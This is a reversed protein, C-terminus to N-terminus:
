SPRCQCKCTAAVGWRRTLAIRVAELIATKGSDNPGVFVTTGGLEIDILKISRFNEIRLRTIKM